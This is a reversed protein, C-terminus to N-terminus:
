TGDPLIAVDTPHNLAASLAPTGEPSNGEEGSGAITSIIGDKTIKRIRQNKTDAFYLNGEPDFAMRGAPDASQGVPQALRAQLAPGGDGGYTAACPRTCRDEEGEPIYTVKGTGPCAFPEVGEIPTGIIC